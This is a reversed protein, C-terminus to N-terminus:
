RWIEMSIIIRGPLAPYFIQAAIMNSTLNGKESLFIVDKFEEQGEEYYIELKYAKFVRNEGVPFVAELMDLLTENLIECSDQRDCVRGNYCAKILEKVDIPEAGSVCETTYEVMSNLFAEIKVSDTKVEPRRLIISLFVLFIVSVLIIILVFGVMEEQGKRRKWGYMERKKIM